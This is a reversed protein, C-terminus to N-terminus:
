PAVRALLARVDDIRQGAFRAANCCPGRERMRAPHECMEVLGASTWVQAKYDFDPRPTQSTM